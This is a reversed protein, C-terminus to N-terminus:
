SADANRERMTDGPVSLSAESAWVQRRFLLQDLEGIRLSLSCATFVVAIRHQAIEEHRNDDAEAERPAQVVQPQARRAPPHPIDGNL